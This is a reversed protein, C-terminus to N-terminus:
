CEPLSRYFNPRNFLFDWVLRPAKLPIELQGKLVTAWDLGQRQPSCWLAYQMLLGANWFVFLAAIGAILWKAAGHKQASAILACAGLVFILTCNIFRRQGFSSASQWTLFSGAIYVQFFFALMLAGTMLRDRRWFLIMGLLGVGAIPTWVVLGHEPNFLVNLFNPSTFNFKGSVVQSPGFRGTIVRYAILQPIFAVVAAAVMIAFGLVLRGFRPVRSAARTRLLAVAAVLAEVGPVAFFLADQERVLMMLGGLTGLVAWQLLTRQKGEAARTRHWYWIFLSVLMLSTAHSWPPAIVTYFILSSALWVVVVAFTALRRGFYSSALSWCLLLGICGFLYSTLSVAAIYPDSWGDAAVDAGLAQAGLTFLHALAYSPMWFLGTGIPAENTPLGTLPERTELLDTKIKEFKVPDVDVWHQYDNTFDLDGDFFLSHTYAYYKIEDSAYIRRTALPALLVFLALLLLLPRNSLYAATSRVRSTFTQPRAAERAPMSDKQAGQINPTNDARAM